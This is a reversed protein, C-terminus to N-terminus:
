RPNQWDDLPGNSQGTREFAEDALCLGGFLWQSIIDTCDITRAVVSLNSGRRSFKSGDFAGATRM